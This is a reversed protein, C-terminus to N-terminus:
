HAPQTKGPGAAGVPAACPHGSFLFLAGHKPAHGTGITTLSGPGADCQDAAALDIWLTVPTAGPAQSRGPPYVAVHAHTGQEALIQAYHGAYRNGARPDDLHPWYVATMCEYPFAAMGDPPSPPRV